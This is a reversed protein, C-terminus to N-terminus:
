FTKRLSLYWVPKIPLFATCLMKQQLPGSTLLTTYRAKKIALAHNYNSDM